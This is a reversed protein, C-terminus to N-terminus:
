VTAASWPVIAIASARAKDYCGASQQAAVGCEEYVLAIGNVGGDRANVMALYDSLGDAAPVVAAALPGERDLLSWISIGDARVASGASLGIALALALRRARWTTM